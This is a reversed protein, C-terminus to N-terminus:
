AVARLKAVWRGIRGWGGTPVLPAGLTCGAKVLGGFLKFIQRSADRKDGQAATEYVLELAGEIDIM